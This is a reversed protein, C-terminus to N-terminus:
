GKSSSDNGSFGILKRLSPFLMTGSDVLAKKEDVLYEDVLEKVSRPSLPHFNDSWESVFGNVVAWKEDESLKRWKKGAEEVKSGMYSSLENFLLERSKNLAEDRQVIQSNLKEVERALKLELEADSLSNNGSTCSISFRLRSSINILQPRSSSYSLFPNTQLKPFQQLPRPAFLNVRFSM